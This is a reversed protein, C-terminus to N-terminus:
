RKLIEIKFIQYKMSWKKFQHEKKPNVYINDRYAYIGSAITGTKSNTDRERKIYTKM